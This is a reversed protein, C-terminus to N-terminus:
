VQNQGERPLTKIAEDRQNPQWNEAEPRDGALPLYPHEHGESQPAPWIRADYVRGFCAEQDATFLPTRAQAVAAVLRGAVACPRWDVTARHCPAFRMATEMLRGCERVIQPRHHVKGAM